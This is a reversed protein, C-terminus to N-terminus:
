SMKHRHAKLSETPHFIVIREETSFRTGCGQCRRRRRYGAATPRCDVVDSLYEGCNPCPFKETM